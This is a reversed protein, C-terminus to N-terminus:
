HEVRVTDTRHMDLLPGFGLLEGAASDAIILIWGLDVEYLWPRHTRMHALHEDFSVVTPTPQLSLKRSAMRSEAAALAEMVPRSRRFEALLLPWTEAERRVWDGGPWETDDQGESELFLFVSLARALAMADSASEPRGLSAQESEPNTVQEDCAVVVTLVSAICCVQRVWAFCRMVRRM